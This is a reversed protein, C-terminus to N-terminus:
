SRWRGIRRNWDNATVYLSPVLFLTVLTSLALGWGLALSMPSMVADYGGLGYATPMVGVFTSLSTVLIPRLRGVLADIMGNTRMMEDADRMEAQARHVSDIMVIASNVVVGALGIMGIMALLSFHMGHLFFTLVVAAAAFPVVAVVFAAELFSGLMIAIVCAIGIVSLVFVAALDGTAKRSQVVEGAIEVELDPHDDFRPLLEREMLEALTTATYPSHPGFGGTVSAARVGDRHHIAALAPLEVPAVVDRLMVFEGSASRVFTDLLADLDQRASPEFLVRVDITDDLDRIETAILGYFAGQLTRGVSSADLGRLALKEYDLNLDIQRMGPREDIDVDVAGNDEAFRKIEIAVERRLTDDNSLVFLRIPELGPPGDLAAEYVVQADAPVRIQAKVREIWTAANYRREDLDLYVAILGENEASGYERDIGLPDQHGVRATLGQLDDGLITPIQLQLADLVAETRELPTGAPTNVKLYFGKSDEQPFFEFQMNPAIGVMIVLWVGVFVAIVRGRKPLWRQLLGRYGEELRLVFARKPRPKSNGRVMSMHAPLIVFSELLSLVLAICVVAPLQWIVRRPFGGIAMIPAFALITTIASTLVPRAVEATGAIAANRPSLGGQRKLLIKEAVVVADDVLLGLVVVFAITSIFNIGIGFSPMVILVALIVLPVGFCVWVAASPALFVFVISAVFTIGLAGNNTLIDLRNRIEFTSDNVVSAEVGEPLRTEELIRIVDARADPMDGDAIKTPVVSIGPRGNTGVALGVDERGLEVRAVDRVRLAGQGAEFRLIVDGVEEPTEFRGWLVVQKRAQATELPGGTTSINRRELAQVVDLLTIAHARLLEPDLFVSIEPDPLGVLGVNGVIPLRRLRRELRVAVAPLLESPGSLAIELIPQKTPDMRLFAPEDRMELPFDTIGDIAARLEREKDLIEERRADDHLDITTVSRNQTIITTYHLIGDVESIAEEIPITLKAEVDRASAGPLRATVLFSPFDVGPFGEVKATLLNLVGLAVLAGTVVNVLTHREVFFRVIREM